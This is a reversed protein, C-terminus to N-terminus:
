SRSQGPKPSRRSGIAGANGRTACCQWSRPKLFRAKKTPRFDPSSGRLDFGEMSTLKQEEHIHFDFLTMSAMHLLTERVSRSDPAPRYDYQAEPIDEAILITNKRVVRMSDALQKPTYLNM